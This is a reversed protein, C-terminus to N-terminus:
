ADFRVPDADILEATAAPLDIWGDSAEPETIWADLAEVSTDELNVVVVISRDDEVDGCRRDV